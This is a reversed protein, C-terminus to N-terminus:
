KVERVFNEKIFYGESNSFYHAVKGKQLKNHRIISLESLVGRTTRYLFQRCAPKLKYNHCVLGNGGLALCVSQWVRDHGIGHTMDCVIHAIEHPITDKCIADVYKTCAEQNLRVRPIGQEDIHATGMSTGKLNTTVVLDSLDVNYLNEALAVVRAIAQDIM